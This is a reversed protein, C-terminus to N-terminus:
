ADRGDFANPEWVTWASIYGPNEALLEQMMQNALARDAHGTQQMAVFANGMAAAAYLAKNLPLGAQKSYKDAMQEVYHLATTQQLSSARHTLFALTLTFGALVICVVVLLLQGRLSLKKFSMLVLLLGLRHSPM